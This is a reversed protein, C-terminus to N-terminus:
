LTSEVFLCFVPGSSPITTYIRQRISDIAIATGYGTFTTVVTNFAATYVTITGLSSNTAYQQYLSAEAVGTPVLSGNPYNGTFSGDGHVAEGMNATVTSIGSANRGWVAVSSGWQTFATAIGGVSLKSVPALTDLYTHVNGGADLAWLDGDGDVFMNVAYTVISPDSITGIQAFNSGYVTITWSGLNGAYITGFPSVAVSYPSSINTTITGKLKATISSATSTIAYISIDGTRGQEFNGSEAVYVNGAADLAIGNPNDLALAAGSMGILALGALAGTTAAWPVAGFFEHVDDHDNESARIM